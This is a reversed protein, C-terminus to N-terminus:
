GVDSDEIGEPAESFIALEVAILDAAQRLGDLGFRNRIAVIHESIIPDVDGPVESM